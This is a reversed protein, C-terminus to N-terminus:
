NLVFIETMDLIVATRSQSIAFRSSSSGKLSYAASSERSLLADLHEPDAVFRALDIIQLREMILKLFTRYPMDRHRLPVNLAPQNHKTAGRAMAARFGRWHRDVYKEPILLSMSQGVVDNPEHGTMESMRDDWSQIVGVQNVRFYGPFQDDM